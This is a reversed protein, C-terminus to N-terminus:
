EWKLLFQHKDGGKFYCKTEECTINKGGTFLKTVSSFIGHWYLCNIPHLNYGKISFSMTKNKEDFVEPTFEGITSMRRWIRYSQDFFLKKKQLIYDMFVRVVFNFKAANAGMEKIKEDSFGLVDQVVLTFAAKLGAKYFKLSKIDKLYIPYGLEKMKGEVRKIGEKGKERLIFETDAKFLAGKIEGEMNILRDVEKKLINEDM